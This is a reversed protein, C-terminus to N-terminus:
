ASRSARIIGSSEGSIAKRLRDLRSHVGRGGRNLLQSALKMAAVTPTLDLATAAEAVNILGGKAARSLKAVAVRM